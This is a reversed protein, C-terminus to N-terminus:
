RKLIETLKSRYLIFFCFWYKLLIVLHPFCFSKNLCNTFFIFLNLSLFFILKAFFAVSNAQIKYKIQSNQCTYRLKYRPHALTVRRNLSVVYEEHYTIKSIDLTDVYNSVESVKLGNQGRM